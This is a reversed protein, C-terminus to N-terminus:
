NGEGFFINGKDMMSVIMVKALRKISNVYWAVYYKIWFLVLCFIVVSQVNNKSFLAKLKFIHPQM